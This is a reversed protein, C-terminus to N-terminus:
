TQTNELDHQLKNGGVSHSKSALVLLGLMCALLAPPLFLAAIMVVGRVCGVM